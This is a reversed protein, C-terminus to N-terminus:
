MSVFRERESRNSQIYYTTGVRVNLEIGRCPLSKCIDCIADKPMDQKETNLIGFMLSRCKSFTDVLVGLLEMASDGDREGRSNIDEEVRVTHLYPNSDVIAKFMSGDRIPEVFELSLFRLNSTAAVIVEINERTATLELLELRELSTSTLSPVLTMIADDLICGELRTGNFNFSTLGSLATCSSIADSCEESACAIMDVMINEIRSGFVRVREWEEIGYHGVTEFEIKLNPCKTFVELLYTTEAMGDIDATLLQNGYSCLFTAYREEGISKVIHRSDHLRIHKLKKCNQEIADIVEGYGELDGFTLDFSELLSGIGQLLPVLQPTAPVSLHKIRTCNTFDPLQITTNAEWMYWEISRLQSSFEALLASVIEENPFPLDFELREVAPCYQIVLSVFQRIFGNEKNEEREPDPDAVALLLEKTSEGCVKLIREFLGTRLEEGELLEPGITIWGIETSVHTSDRVQSLSVKTLVSSVVNCFPSDESFLFSLFGSEGSPLPAADPYEENESDEYWVIDLWEILKVHIDDPLTEFYTLCSPGTVKPENM